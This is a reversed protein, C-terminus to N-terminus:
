INEVQNDFEGSSQNKKAVQNDDTAVQNDRYSFIFIFIDKNRKLYFILIKM